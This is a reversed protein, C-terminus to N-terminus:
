AEQMRARGIQKASKKVSKKESTYALARFVSRIAADLKWETADSMLRGSSGEVKLKLEYQHNSGQTKTMKMHLSIRLEEGAKRQLALAESRILALFRAQQVDHLGLESMGKIRIALNPEIIKAVFAALLDKVTVLGFVKDNEQVILDRINRKHMLAVADMLSNKRTVTLLPGVSLFSGVPLQLLPERDVVSGRSTRGGGAKTPNSIREQTHTAVKLVDRISLVGELERNKFVLIHDVKQQVMVTLAKSIPDLSKLPNPKALALSGVSKSASDLDLSLEKLVDLIQVLGVLKGSKEVPITQVGTAHMLKACSILDLDELVIPTKIIINQVKSKNSYKQNLLKRRSVLGLYSGQDDVVVASRKKNKILAGVIKSISDDQTFTLFDTKMIEKVNM